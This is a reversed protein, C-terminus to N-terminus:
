RRNSILPPATVPFAPILKINATAPPTTSTHAPAPAPPVPTTPTASPWLNPRLEAIMSDPLPRVDTYGDNNTPDMDGLKKWAGGQAAAGRMRDFRYAFGNCVPQAGGGWTEGTFDGQWGSHGPLALPPSAPKGDVWVRWYNRMHAMELIALRHSQGVPVNDIVQHYHDSDSVGPAYYEWYLHNATVGTGASNYGVQLWEATHNPGSAEDGIGLWGAVHGNQVASTRLVTVDASFGRFANNTYLGAYSYDSVFCGHDNRSQSRLTSAM